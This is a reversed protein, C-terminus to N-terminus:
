YTWSLNWASSWHNLVAKETMKKQWFRLKTNCFYMNGSQFKFVLFSLPFFFFFVLLCYNWTLFANLINSQSLIVTHTFQNVANVERSSFSTEETSSYISDFYTRGCSSMWFDPFCPLSEHSNAVKFWKVGLFGFSKNYQPKWFM